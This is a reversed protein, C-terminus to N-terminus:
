THKKLFLKHTQLVSKLFMESKFAKAQKIQTEGPTEANKVKQSWSHGGTTPTAVNKLCGM